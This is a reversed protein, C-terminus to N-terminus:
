APPTQTSEPDQPRIHDLHGKLSRKVAAVYRMRLDHQEAKEEETLGEAKAKRALHNIRHIEEDTIM